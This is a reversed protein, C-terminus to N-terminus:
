NRSLTLGRVASPPLDRSPLVLWKVPLTILSRCRRCRLPAAISAQLNEAPVVSLASTPKRSSSYSFVCQTAATFRRNLADEVRSAGRLYRGCTRNNTPAM